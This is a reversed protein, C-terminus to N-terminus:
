QLSIGRGLRNMTQQQEDSSIMQLEIRQRDNDKFDVEASKDELAKAVSPDGVVDASEEELAYVHYHGPRLNNFAFTGDSHMESLEVGSGDPNTEEPLLAISVAPITAPTEGGGSTRVPFHVTGELKAARYRYIIELEGSGGQSLDIPRGLMEQNNFLVSALYAGDPGNALNVRYLAPSLDDSIFTGDPKTTLPQPIYRQGAVYMEVEIRLTARNWPAVGTAATGDVRVNGHLKAAPIVSLVIDNVDASGVTISQSESTRRGNDHVAFLTLKYSGATIGGLDFTGDNQIDASPDGYM